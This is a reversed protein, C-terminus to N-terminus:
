TPFYQAKSKPSTNILVILYLSASNSCSDTATIKINYLGYYKNQANIRLEGITSNVRILDFPLIIDDSYTANYKFSTSPPGFCPSYNMFYVGVNEDDLYTFTLWDLCSSNSVKNVYPQTQLVQFRFTTKTSLGYEDTGTLQIM